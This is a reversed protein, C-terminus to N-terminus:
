ELSGENLSQLQQITLPGQWKHGLWSLGTCVNLSVTINLSHTITSSLYSLMNKLDFLLRAIKEIIWQVKQMM